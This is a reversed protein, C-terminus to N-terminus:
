IIFGQTLFTVESEESKTTCPQHQVPSPTSDDDDSDSSVEEMNGKELFTSPVVRSIDITEKAMWVALVLRLYKAYKTPTTLYVNPISQTKKTFLTKAFASAMCTISGVIAVVVGCIDRDTQLPYRSLCVDECKHVGDKTLHPPHCCQLGAVKRQYLQIFSINSEHEQNCPTM